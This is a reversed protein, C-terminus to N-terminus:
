AMAEAELYSSLFPEALNPRGAAGWDGQEVVWVRKTIGRFGEITVPGRPAQEAELNYFDFPSDFDGSLDGRAWHLLIDGPQFGAKEIPSNKDVHELVMGPKLGAALVVSSGNEPRSTQALLSGVIFLFLFALALPRKLSTYICSM